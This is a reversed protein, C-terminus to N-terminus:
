ISTGDFRLHLNNEFGFKLIETLQETNTIKKYEYGNFYVDASGNSDKKARFLAQIKFKTKTLSQLVEYYSQTEKDNGYSIVTVGYVSGQSAAEKILTTELERYDYFRVEKIVNGEEALSCSSLIVFLIFKNAIKYM